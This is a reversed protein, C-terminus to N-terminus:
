GYHFLTRNKCDNSDNSDYIRAMAERKLDLTATFSPDIESAEDCYEM